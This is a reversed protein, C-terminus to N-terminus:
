LFKLDRCTEKVNWKFYGISYCYEQGERWYYKVLDITENPEDGTVRALKQPAARLGFDGLRWDFKLDAM